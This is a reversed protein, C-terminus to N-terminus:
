RVSCRHSLMGDVHSLNRDSSSVIGCVSVIVDGDKAKHSWDNWGCVNMWNLKWWLVDFIQNKWEFVLLTLNSAETELGDTARSWVVEQVAAILSRCCSRSAEGPVDPAVIESETSFVVDFPRISALSVDAIRENDRVSTLVHEDSNQRDMRRAAGSRRCGVGSDSVESSPNLSLEGNLSRVYHTDYKQSILIFQKLFVVRYM